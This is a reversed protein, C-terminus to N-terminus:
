ILEEGRHQPPTRDTRPFWKSGHAGSPPSTSDVFDCGPDLGLVAHQIVLEHECHVDDFLYRIANLPPLLASRVLALRHLLVQGQISVVEDGRDV